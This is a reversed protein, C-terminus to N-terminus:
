VFTATHDTSNLSKGSTLRSDGDYLNIGGSQFDGTAGAGVRKFVLSDLTGNGYVNIKMFQIATAGKPISAAAPNDAALTITLGSGTPPPVTPPTGPTGGGMAVVAARTKPGFYGVAPTISKAAQFKAVAAKTLNGFYTSENGPSGAGSAAVQYGNANLWQQLAKVDDGKSGVTLDRTFDYSSPTTGQNLQAQLAAIQALLTAIQAQLEENTVAQAQPVMMTTGTLWVITTIALGVSVFKKNLKSM